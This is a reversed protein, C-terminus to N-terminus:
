NQSNRLQSLCRWRRLTVGLYVMQRNPSSAKSTSEALGLEQFLSALGLFSREARELTSEAGGLDDSYNCINYEEEDVSEMGSKRHIWAVADTTKQGQLGSHRLGFMLAIFFFILGRWVFAVRHYESSCLPLQLYYRHLDRKWLFCNRGCKLIMLRFDNIKPFTYVCPEGMYTASPTANNLSKDGFTADFVARRGDPKKAATMLPACTVDCWPAEQFPGTLGVKQIEGVIFKDIYPYFNYSSGHNRSCSELEPDEQLGLPFGYQLLQVVYADEYGVLHYRWRDIKLATHTLPIRAGLFNPTGAPYCFGAKDFGSASVMNGHNVFYDPSYEPHPILASIPSPLARDIFNGAISVEVAQLNTSKVVPKAPAPFASLDPDDMFPLFPLLQEEAKGLKRPRVYARSETTGSFWRSLADRDHPAHRGDGAGGQGQASLAPYVSSHPTFQPALPDLCSVPLLPAVAAISVRRASLVSEPTIVLAPLTTPAEM